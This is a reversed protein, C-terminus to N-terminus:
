SSRDVPGECYDQCFILRCGFHHEWVALVKVVTKEAAVRVASSALLTLPNSNLKLTPELLANSFFNLLVLQTKPIKAAGIHNTPSEELLYISGRSSTGGVSMKPSSTTTSPSPKPAGAAPLTSLLPHLLKVPLGLDQDSMKQKDLGRPKGLRRKRIMVIAGDEDQCIELRGPIRTEPGFGRFHQEEQDKLEQELHDHLQEQELEKLRSAQLVKPALDPDPPGRCSYGDGQCAFKEKMESGAEQDGEKGQEQGRRESKQEKDSESEKEQEQDDLSEQEEVTVSTM